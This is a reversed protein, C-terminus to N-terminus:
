FHFAHSKQQTQVQQNVYDVFMQHVSYYFLHSAFIEWDSYTCVFLYVTAVTGPLCMCTHISSLTFVYTSDCVKIDDQEVSTNAHEDAGVVEEIHPGSTQSSPPPQIALIGRSIQESSSPIWIFYLYVFCTSSWSVQDDVRLSGTFILSAGHNLVCMCVCMCIRVQHYVNQYKWM